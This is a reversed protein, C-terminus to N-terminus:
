ITRKVLLNSRTVQLPIDYFNV